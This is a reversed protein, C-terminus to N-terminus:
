KVMAKLLELDDIVSQLNDITDQIEKTDNKFINTEIEDEKIEIFGSASFRTTLTM